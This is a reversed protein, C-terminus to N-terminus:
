FFLDSSVNELFINEEHQLSANKTVKKVTGITIRIPFTYTDLNLFMFALYFARGMDAIFKLLTSILKKHAGMILKILKLPIPIMLFPRGM